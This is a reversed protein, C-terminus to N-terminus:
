GAPIYLKITSGLGSKSKIELHGGYSHLIERAIFLGLGRGKNRSPTTMDDNGSKIIGHGTDSIEIVAFKRGSDTESKTIVALVGGSPMADIANNIVNLIAHELYFTNIMIPLTYGSKFFTKIKHSRVQLSTLIKIKKLLSGLDTRSLGQDSISTSLFKAIFNDLRSIEEEIIETFEILKKESAYKERLYVVAGKIANLPSRVGHAFSASIKGIDVFRESQKLRESIMCGPYAKIKINAGRIKGTGDKLPSIRIDAQAGGYYCIIRYGKVTISKCSNLAQIVADKGDKKIKPIIQHYPIGQVEYSTKGFIRELEKSWSNIRLRNDVTFFYSTTNANHTM